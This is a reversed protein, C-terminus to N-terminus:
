GVEKGFAARAQARASGLGCDCDHGFRHGCTSAHTALSLLLANDRTLEEIRATMQANQAALTDIASVADDLAEILYRPDRVRVCGEAVFQVDDTARALQDRIPRLREVVGNAASPVPPGPLPAAARAADHILTWRAVDEGIQRDAEKDQEPLDDYAVLWSTKPTPQNQAWRVWAERVMRGLTDRDLPLPRAGYAAQVTVGQAKSEESTPM